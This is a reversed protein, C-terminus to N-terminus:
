LTGGRGEHAHTCPKGLNNYLSAINICLERDEDPIRKDDVLLAFVNVYMAGGLLGVYIMAVIEVGMGVVHLKAQIMWLVFNVGQLVSLFEVRRVRVVKLSSRSLLVGFQYCFALIPYSERMWFSAGPAKSAGAPNAKAAFSVSVVDPLPYLLLFPSVTLPHPLVGGCLWGAVIM